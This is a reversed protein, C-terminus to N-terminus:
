SFFTVSWSLLSGCYPFSLTPCASLTAHFCMCQWTCLLYSVPLQQPVCPAWGLARVAQLFPNPYPITLLSLVFIYKHNIWTRTHCFGVCHQLATIKWNFIKFFILSEQKIWVGMSSMPDPVHYPVVSTHWIFLHKMTSMDSISASAWCHSHTLWERLM